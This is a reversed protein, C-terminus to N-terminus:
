LNENYLSEACIVCFVRTVHWVAHENTREWCETHRSWMSFMEETTRYLCEARVVSSFVAERNKHRWRTRSFTNLTLQMTVTLARVYFVSSRYQQGRTNRANGLLPDTPWSINHM